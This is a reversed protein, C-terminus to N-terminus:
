EYLDGDCEITTRDISDFKQCQKTKISDNFTRVFPLKFSLLIIVGSNDATHDSFLTCKRSNNEIVICM